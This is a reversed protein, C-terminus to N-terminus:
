TNEGSEHQVHRKPWRLNIKAGGEPADGLQLKGGYHMLTKDVMSLGIGTGEVEDRPKLTQFMEIAKARYKEPIGPGDDRVEINYEHATERAEVWIHGKDSHHHKIANDILNRIVMELPVYPLSLTLENNHVTFGPPIDITERIAQMMEALSIDSYEYDLRGIRSYQLLDDLLNNMRKVRNKILGFHRATQEDLKDQLDEEMWTTLKNIANLPSKLDHSAVYAFRNLEENSQALKRLSLEKQTVDRAVCLLYAKGNRANFLRKKTWLIRMKGDPFLYEEFADSRGQELAQQDTETVARAIEPLYLESAHKGKISAEDMKPHLALFAQNVFTFRFGEDKIYFFDDQDQRILENLQFLSESDASQYQSQLCVIASEALTALSETAEDDLTMADPHLVALTGIVLGDFSILPASAYFRVRPEADDQALMAYDPDRSLDAIELPKQSDIVRACPWHSRPRNLLSLGYSAKFWVRNKDVLTLAAMKTGCLRAAMRTLKNLHQDQEEFGLNLRKLARLRREESVSDATQTM